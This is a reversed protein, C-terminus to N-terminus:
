RLSIGAPNGLLTNSGVITRIPAVNGSAHAAYVTVSNTTQNTVYIKGSSDFTIQDPISLGTKSGAITLIPSVNGNAHPAFVAGRRPRNQSEASIQTAALRCTEPRSV